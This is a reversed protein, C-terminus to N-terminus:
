SVSLLRNALSKAVKECSINWQEDTLYGIAALLCNYLLASLGELQRDLFLSIIVEILEEVESTSFM